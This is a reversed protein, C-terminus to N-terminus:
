HQYDLKAAPALSINRRLFGDHSSAASAAAITVIAHRYVLHMMAAEREWDASSDKFLALSDIWLYRIGLSGRSTSQMSLTKLFIWCRSDRRMAADHTQHQFRALSADNYQRGCIASPEGDCTM